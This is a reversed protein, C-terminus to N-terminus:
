RVRSRRSSPRIRRSALRSCIRWARCVVRSIAPRRLSRRSVPLLTVLRCGPGTRSASSLAGAPLTYVAPIETNAFTVEKGKNNVLKMTARLDKGGRQKTDLVVTSSLGTVEDVQTTVTMGDVFDQFKLFGAVETVVPHTHPDWTAVVQGGVVADGEKATIIAGYPIKYRERERGFEDVVGIEGSRSVAVLHGKEHQVTKIHHFRLVGKNRVEVSSAAAARSAAGGIHFTRMTLQTGPEGISQAAIVGVAEGISISRGRALDRGYCSACVGYRTECTIPSRVLMQDVGEQELTRVSKEDLLTNKTFLVEETGPKLIDEAIVRGLVREGLAEVVDGGEVLPAM